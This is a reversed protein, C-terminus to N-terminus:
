DLCLVSELEGVEGNTRAEQLFLSLSDEKRKHIKLQRRRSGSKHSNRLLGFFHSGVGYNACLPPCNRSRRRRPPRPRPSDEDGIERSEWASCGGREQYLRCHARGVLLVSVRLDVAGSKVTKEKKPTFIGPKTAATLIGNDASSSGDGNGIAGNEGGGGVFIVTTSECPKRSREFHKSAESARENARENM